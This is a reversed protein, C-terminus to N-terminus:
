CLKWETLNGMKPMEWAQIEFGLLAQNHKRPMRTCSFLTVHFIGGRKQLHSFSPVIVDRGQKSQSLVEHRARLPAWGERIAATELGSCSGVWLVRVPLGVVSRPEPSTAAGEPKKVGNNWETLAVEYFEDICFIFGFPLLVILFGIKNRNLKIVWTSQVGSKFLFWQLCFQGSLYWGKLFLSVVM